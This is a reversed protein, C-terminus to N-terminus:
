SFRHFLGYDEDRFLQGRGSNLRQPWIEVDPVSIARIAGVEKRRKGFSM